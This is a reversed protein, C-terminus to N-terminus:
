RAIFADNRLQMASSVISFTGALFTLILGSGPEMSILGLKSNKSSLDSFAGVAVVTIFCCVILCLIRSWTNTKWLGVFAAAPIALFFAIVGDGEVGSKSFPGLTAWPLLTGFVVTGLAVWTLIQWLQMQRHRLQIAAASAVPESNRFGVSAPVPAVPAHIRDEHSPQPSGPITLPAMSGIPRWTLVVQEKSIWVRCADCVFNNASEVWRLLNGCRPCVPVLEAQSATPAGRSQGTTPVRAVIPPQGPTAAPSCSARGAGVAEPLAEGCWKCKIARDPIEEACIPCKRM